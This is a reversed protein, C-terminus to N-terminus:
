GLKPRRAWERIGGGRVLQAQEKQEKLELTLKQVQNQLFKQQRCLSRPSPAVEAAGVEPDAALSPLLLLEM